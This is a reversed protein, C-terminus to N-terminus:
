VNGDWQNGEVFAEFGGSKKCGLERPTCIMYSSGVELQVMMTRMMHVVILVQCSLMNIGVCSKGDGVRAVCMGVAIEASQAIMTQMLIVVGVRTLIGVL